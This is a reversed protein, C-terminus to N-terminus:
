AIGRKLLRQAQRRPVIQIIEAAWRVRVDNLTPGAISELDFLGPKSGRQLRKVLVDEDDSEDGRGAIQVVVVEGIMDETPPTRQDDFYILSGDDAFGRMSHGDVEVAVSNSTGGTPVPAWDNAPQGVTRIILGAPDAGVRGIIPVFAGTAMSGTGAYLWEASVKFAKAYDQAQDFSFPAAGNENSKYTNYTFGFRRAADAASTFGAAIRAQRLRDHRETM